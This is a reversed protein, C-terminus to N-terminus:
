SHSTTFCIYRGLRDLLFSNYFIRPLDINTDKSQVSILFVCRTSFIMINSVLNLVNDFTFSIKLIFINSTNVTICIPIM